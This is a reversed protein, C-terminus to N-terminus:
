QTPPNALEGQELADQYWPTLIEPGTRLFLETEMIALGELSLSSLTVQAAATELQKRQTGKLLLVTDIYVVLMDRAAQAQFVQRETQRAVYESYAEDSLVDKIAQKYLPHNTINYLEAGGWLKNTWSEDTLTKKMAELEKVAQERPIDQKIVQFSLNHLDLLYRFKANDNQKRAEIYQQLVGKTAIELRKEAIETLAGLQQTHLGLIAEALHWRQSKFENQLADPFTERDRQEFIVVGEWIEAQTPTLVTDLSIDLQGRLLNVVKTQLSLENFIGTVDEVTDHSIKDNLLATVNERQKHTLWLLQDLFATIFHATAQRVQQQRAKIFDIYDQIQTETLHKEFAPRCDPHSLLGMILGPIGEDATELAADMNRNMEELVTNLAELISQHFAKVIREDLNYREGINEVIYQLTWETLREEIDDRKTMKIQVFHDGGNVITVAKGNRENYERKHINILYRGAPLSDFKYQGKADTKVTFVKNDIGVINVTVGEIANREPTTDHIIGRVTGGNNEQRTFITIILVLISRTMLIKPNSVGLM